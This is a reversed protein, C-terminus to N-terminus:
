SVRAFNETSGFSIEIHKRKTKTNCMVRICCSSYDRLMKGMYFGYYGATYFGYFSNTKLWFTDVHLENTFRTNEIQYYYNPKNRNWSYVRRFM